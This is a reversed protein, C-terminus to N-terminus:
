VLKIDVHMINVQHLKLQVVTIYTINPHKIVRDQGIAMDQNVIYPHKIVQDQRYVSSQM